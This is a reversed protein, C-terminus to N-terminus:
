RLEGDNGLTTKRVISLFNGIDWRQIEIKRLNTQLLHYLNKVKIPGYGM